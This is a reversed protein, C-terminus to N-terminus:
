FRALVVGRGPDSWALQQKYVKFHRVAPRILLAGLAVLGAGVVLFVVGTVLQGTADTGVYIPRVGPSLWGAGGAGFITLSLGDFFLPLGVAFAAASGATYGIFTWLEKRAERSLAHEVDLEPTRPGPVPLPRLAPATALSPLGDFAIARASAPASWASAIVLSLLALTRM